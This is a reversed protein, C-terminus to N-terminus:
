FDAVQRGRKRLFQPSSVISDVLTSFRFENSKLQTQMQELLVEDSLRLSRGLAYSLLKRCLNDVFEPEREEQLYERLEEVGARQSGDPFTAQTDVPRGGLDVERREGVPGYAEFALGLADFRNHCGACSAHERHRALTERLTLEGLQAEDQPLEPVDPPPPPIHEGLLRRVVWYGRKVPSTRLGPSNATLFVAMPLLGGRGYRDASPVEVWNDDCAVETMGYHTALPQNVYTRTAYLCDLVSRDEQILNLLFRVPEEYMASRLDDDFQPFRERDVSNHQEFHRYDLWNGGFEVALARARDDGLMRQVQARLVSPELLEGSAAHQMLQQDPISSWLFFSLRSALEYSDLARTTESDSLLDHRYCFRPSVLIALLTDQIAEEHTLGDNRRLDAYFGRLEQAENAELPRRFARAAFEILDSLHGPQAELQAAEVSRIQRNIERFYDEIATLPIAEGGARRAKAVYVESLKEINEERLAELNEPRAFDFEPDRMFRSDTREFWLFGQYQRQPATTIFDLEQWLLDLERQAHEDLILEYLPADDRFYGMMSHFGASLLRGKEQEDRSKGLYDRGRESIYFADPFISCFIECDARFSDRDEQEEDPPDILDQQALEKTNELISFDATRRHTAYQRNKWLVFSQSGKHVGEITLNDFYPEFLQRAALAYDRMEDCAARGESAGADEPLDRWMQQLRALPGASVPSHLAEWISQLYKRSLAQADAYEELTASATSASNDTARRYQWCAYFYDSLETPQREYFEVIRKVCYKDRDTDTVVPHPAFRIGTPTLLLHEVVARGAELYKSLLAPSMLLSEGSNDFGAENAPDVPFSSTPRIDVGTLDRVSYDYEANSLRRVHVPGPDGASRAAEYQRFAQVWAVLTQRDTAQMEIGSDAPPMEAAQVRQLITDWVRHAARVDAYQTFSSLDLEAERTQSDHCDLCHDRLLPVIRGQYEDRLVAEDPEASPLSGGLILSTWLCVLAPLLRNM